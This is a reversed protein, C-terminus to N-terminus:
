APGRTHVTRRQSNRRASLGAFAVLTLTHAEEGSEDNRAADAAHNVRDAGGLAYHAFNDDRLADSPRQIGGFLYGIRDTCHLIVGDLPGDRGCKASGRPRPLLLRGRDEQMFATRNSVSRGLRCRSTSGTSGSPSPGADRRTEDCRWNAGRCLCTRRGRTPIGLLAAIGSRHRPPVSLTPM